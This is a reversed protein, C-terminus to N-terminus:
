AASDPDEPEEEIEGAYPPFVTLMPMALNVLESRRRAGLKASARVLYTKVTSESIGRMRAIEKNSLGRAVLGIIEAEADALIVPPMQTHRPKPRAEVTRWAADNLTPTLAEVFSVHQETLPGPLRGFNFAAFRRTQRDVYGHAIVNKVDHQIFNDLWQATAEPWYTVGLEFVQPRGTNLWRNMVPSEIAGASNKLNETYTLPFDVTLYHTPVSGVNYIRGLAAVFIEHPFAPRVCGRIWHEFDRASHITQASQQLEELIAASRAFGKLRSSV